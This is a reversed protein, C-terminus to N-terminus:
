KTKEEEESATTTTAEERWKLRIPCSSFRFLFITLTPFAALRTTQLIKKRRKKFQIWAHHQTYLRPTCYVRSLKIYKGHITNNHRRARKSCIYYKNCALFRHVMFKILMFFGNDVSRANIYCKIKDFIEHKQSSTEVSKWM